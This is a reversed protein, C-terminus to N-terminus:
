NASCDLAVFIRQQVGTPGIARGSVERSEQIDLSNARKLECSNLSERFIGGDRSLDEAFDKMEASGSAQPTSAMVPIESELDSLVTPIM